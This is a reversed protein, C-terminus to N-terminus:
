AMAKFAAVMCRRYFDKDAPMTPGWPVAAHENWSAICMREIVEPTPEFTHTDINDLHEFVPDVTHLRGVSAGRLEELKAAQIESDSVGYQGASIGAVARAERERRQRNSEGPSIVKRKLGCVHCEDDGVASFTVHPHACEDQNM